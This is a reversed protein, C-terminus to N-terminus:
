LSHCAGSSSDSLPLGDVWLVVSRLAPLEFVSARCQGVSVEAKHPTHPFKPNGGITGTGSSQSLAGMHLPLPATTPWLTPPSPSICSCRESWPAAQRQSGSSLAECRGPRVAAGHRERSAGSLARWCTPDAAVQVLRPRRWLGLPKVLQPVKQGASPLGAARPNNRSELVHKRANFIMAIHLEPAEVM